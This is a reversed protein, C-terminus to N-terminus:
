RSQQLDANWRILLKVEIVEEWREEARLLGELHQMASFDRPDVALLQRWADIAEYPRGLM